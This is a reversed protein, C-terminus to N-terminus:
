RPRFRKITDVWHTNMLYPYYHDYVHQDQFQAKWNEINAATIEEFSDVIKVPLNEYLPDLSSREVIVYSGLVLAEWTRHCDLGSGHPSMVFDFRAMQQWLTARPLRKKEFYVSANSKLSRYIAKRDRQVTPHRRVLHRSSNNFHFDAYVADVKNGCFDDRIALLSSEQQQPTQITKFRWSTKEFQSHFDMGLPLPSIKETQHVGPDYNQTYWHLLRSDQVIEALTVPCLEAPLSITSDGTVLVFPESIHPFVQKFFAGVLSGKIWITEGSHINLYKEPRLVPYFDYRDCGMAIGKNWVISTTHPYCRETLVKKKKFLRM